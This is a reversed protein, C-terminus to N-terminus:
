VLCGMGAGVLRAGRETELDSTNSQSYSLEILTLPTSKTAVEPAPFIEQLNDRLM